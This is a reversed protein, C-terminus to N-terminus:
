KAKKKKRGTILFLVLAAVGVGSCIWVWIPIQDGTGLMGYLPTGYGFMDFLDELEEDSLGEYNPAPTGGREQIETPEDPVNPVNGGPLLGNTLNMGNIRKYYGPVTEEDIATKEAFIAAETVIRQEDVAADALVEKLRALLRARYQEAVGPQV